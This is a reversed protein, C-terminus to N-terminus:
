SAMRDHLLWFLHRSNGFLTYHLSHMEAHRSPLVLTGEVSTALALQNHAKNLEELPSGALFHMPHDTLAYRDRFSRTVIARKVTLSSPSSIAEQSGLAVICGGICAPSYEIYHRFTAHLSAGFQEALARITGFTPPAQFAVEDFVQQQFLLRVAAYNAEDEFWLTVQKDLRGGAHLYALDRQWPCLDHGVEHLLGFRQRVALEDPPIHVVRSRHDLLGLPCKGQEILAQIRFRMPEPADAIVHPAFLNVIGDSVELRQAALIVDVPTPFIGRAQAQDLLHSVLIDIDVRSKM